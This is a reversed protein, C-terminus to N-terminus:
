IIVQGAQRQNLRREVHGVALRPDGVAVVGTLGPGSRRM